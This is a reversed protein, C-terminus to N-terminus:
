TATLGRACSMVDYLYITMCHLMSLWVNFPAIVAIYAFVPCTGCECQMPVEQVLRSILTLIHMCVSSTANTSLQFSKSPQDLSILSQIVSMRRSMLASPDENFHCCIGSWLIGICYTQPFCYLDYPPTQQVPNMAENICTSTLNNALIPLFITMLKYSGLAVPPSLKNSAHVTHRHDSEM